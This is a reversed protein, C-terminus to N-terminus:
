LVINIYSHHSNSFTPTAARKRKLLTQTIELKGDDWSAHYVYPTTSLTLTIPNTCLPHLVFPTLEHLRPDHLTCTAHMSARIQRHGKEDQRCTLPRKETLLVPGHRPCRRRGVAEQMDGWLRESVETPLTNSEKWERVAQRRARTEKGDDLM